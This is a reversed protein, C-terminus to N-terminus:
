KSLDKIRINKFHVKSGHGLFGIHGKERMLGPHDKGDAAGNERADSIDADLIVTGNLIVKIKPGQVIVEQHNWEGVPNLYGKRSAAIGYASGHYQYPKLDKYIDATNDLIQLEIGQYAADGELPARIGLGNNAGPTLKFDFRFVFDSYEEKTFFNGGSGKTPQVVLEGGQIKYSETNGTWQDLNTGDFLVKFGAAKEEASLKFPEAQGLERVYIDRYAIRSGHAQLEIQEKAFLPLDRDWYNEMVVSDTVLVGNLYVTVRDGKMIIHFNNWRGLPNDAVKLPKSEYKQNNYLGGSGVQAGVDVRSTDWIQVQPTGRLYIGADGNKQGDDFIKWDVFMEIDGYAKVTAINDGKGTFILDGDEVIWSGRMAEDAQRQKAALEKESMADRKIPNAVLGKWGSLDKGNFIAVFGDDAPMEALHKRIAERLYESDRGQLVELTQNLLKEVEKGYFYNVDTLAIEIIANAAAQQLDAQEIFEGAFMLAPFTAYKSLENLILRGQEKTQSVAMADKLLIVKQDDPFDNAGILRVFAKIAEDRFQKNSTQSAIAYLEPMAAADSWAALATVAAAQEASSGQEYAQSVTQLAKEGGVSALLSYYLPRKDAPAKQLQGLVTQARTEENQQSLAYVIGKQLSRVEADQVGKNLLTFLQPLNSEASVTEIASYAATRVNPDSSELLPLVADFQGSMSRYALVDLLAVKAPGQLEPLAAALAAGMEPDKVIKLANTVAAIEQKDGKKLINIFAPLAKGQGTQALAQIAALRLAPDASDKQLVSLIVPFASEVHQNGLFSILGRKTDAQGKGARKIIAGIVAPNMDEAAISLATARYSPDSDKLAKAIAKRHNGKEIDASLVLSAARISPDANNRVSKSFRKALKAALSGEGKEALNGIYRIYASTADSPDYGYDQAEAADKLVDASAPDAIRALAFLGTKIVATDQSNQIRSTIVPVAGAYATYGLAESLHRAIKPDQTKELAATLAANAADTGISALTRAAPGALDADTLYASLGNVTKESGVLQLQRILFAKNETAQEKELAQLYASEAAQKSATEDGKSLYMSYSNIAYQVPASSGEAQPILRAALEAIGETGLKEMDQMVESLRISDQAPVKMLLDAIKTQVTRQDGPQALVIQGCIFLSVFLLIKKM